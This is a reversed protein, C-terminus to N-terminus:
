IQCLSVSMDNMMQITPSRLMVREIELLSCSLLRNRHSFYYIPEGHCRLGADESHGSSCSVSTDRSCDLLSSESGTCGVNDLFIEGSGAGFHASGFALADPSPCIDDTNTKIM